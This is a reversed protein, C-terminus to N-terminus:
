LQQPVAMDSIGIVLSGFGLSIGFGLSWIGFVTDFQERFSRIVYENPYQDNPNLQSKPVQDNPIESDM